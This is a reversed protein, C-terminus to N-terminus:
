RKKLIIVKDSSRVEYAYYTDMIIELGVKESPEIAGDILMVYGEDLLPEIGYETDGIRFTDTASVIKETVKGVPVEDAYVTLGADIFTNLRSAKRADVMVQLNDLEKGLEKVDYGHKIGLGIVVLLMAVAFVLSVNGLKKM